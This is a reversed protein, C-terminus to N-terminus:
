DSLTIRLTPLRVCERNLDMVTDRASRIAWWVLFDAVQIDTYFAGLAKASDATSALVDSHEM